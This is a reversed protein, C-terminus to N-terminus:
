HDFRIIDDEALYSGTRVEILELPIKGPNELSHIVGLPIYISQDETLLETTSGKIVKATGAVIIWHESRHNHMQLSIRKGPKITIHKVQYRGGHNISNIKGWPKYEERHAKYENRNCDKLSQVISKVDQVHNKNAVLIADPTDVIILNEVGVTTVLKSSSYLYNSKSNITIIDGKLVNNNKDKESVEWLASWSGIDSWGADMPVMKIHNTKEMVAYDISDNPCKEFFEKTVRIFDMDVKSNDFALKCSNLIDPNYLNLESLYLSPKFMFMGSNWYYDGSALYLKATELDPKEVFQQVLLNDSLNKSSSAYAKIYGYGTEPSTPKIGFTVLHNKQALIRANEIALEFPLTDKILHDAALVLLTPEISYNLQLARLAALAIAPATNRGIPELIIGSHSLGIERLQEAVIFRHEENCIIIPPLHEIGSLRNLTEQLMSLGDVNPISLFQKPYLERSLPWLRSGHGGAIIIPLIM